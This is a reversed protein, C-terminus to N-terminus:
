RRPQVHRGAACNTAIMAQQTRVLDRWQEWRARTNAAAGAPTDDYAAHSVFSVGPRVHTSPKTDHLWADSTARCPGCLRDPM